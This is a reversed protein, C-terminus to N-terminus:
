PIAGELIHRCSDLPQPRGTIVAASLDPVLAGGTGFDRKGSAFVDYREAVCAPASSKTL